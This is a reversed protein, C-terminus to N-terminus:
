SEGKSKSHSGIFVLILSIALNKDRLISSVNTAAADLIPGTSWKINHDLSVGLKLKDTRIIILLSSWKGGWLEIGM